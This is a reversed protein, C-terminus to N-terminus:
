QLLNYDEPEPLDKLRPYSRTVKDMWAQRKDEPTSVLSRVRM